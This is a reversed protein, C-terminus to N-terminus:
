PMTQEYPLSSHHLVIKLVGDQTRKYGFSKDVRISQGERNELMMWGMWMAINKQTFTASTEFWVKRWFKIGFGTDLPYEASNGVFYSLAGEKTTRFTKEGGSLTPKFLIPGFEFGYLDDLTQSAVQRAMELGDTEYARSVLVMGDGWNVLAEIIEDETITM